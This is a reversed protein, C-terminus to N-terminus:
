AKTAFCFGRKSPLQFDFPAPSLRAPCRRASRTAGAKRDGHAVFTIEVPREELFPVALELALEVGPGSGVNSVVVVAVHVSGAARQDALEAGGAPRAVRDAASGIAANGVHDVRARDAKDALRQRAMGAESIEGEGHLAQARARDGEVARLLLFAGIQRTGRRALRDRREGEGLRVGSRVHCREAAGGALVAVGIHEVALLGPDGVAADGIKVDHEGAGALAFAAAADGGEDDIGAHRSEDDGLTDFHDRRMRERPELEGLQRMGFDRSSPAAPSPKLIAM